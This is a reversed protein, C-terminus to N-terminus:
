GPLRRLRLGAAAADWDGAWTGPRLDDVLPVLLAAREGDPSRQKLLVGGAGPGRVPFLWLEDDRLLPVLADAPFRERALAPPVRLYGRADLTLAIM